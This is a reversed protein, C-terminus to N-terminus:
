AATKSLIESVIDSSRKCTKSKSAMRGRAKEVAVQEDAFQRGYLKVWVDYIWLFLYQHHDDEKGSFLGSELRHGLEHILTAKKTDSPYSARLRMPLDRYGSESTGEFVIARVESEDFKLGSVSQMANVIREGERTWLDAYERAAAEFQPSEPTFTIRLVSAQARSGSTVEAIHRTVMDLCTGQEGSIVITTRDAQFRRSGAVTTRNQRAAESGDKFAVAHVVVLNPGEDAYIAVYAEEVDGALELRMRALEPGSLPPGDPLRPLRAVRERIAAVVPRDTGRWPNSSIPLGTWLGGRTRNEGIRISDTAPLHCGAPLRDAPVTLMDLAVGTQGRLAVAGLPFALAVLFLHVATNVM